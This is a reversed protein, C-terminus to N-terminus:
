DELACVGNSLSLFSARRELNGNLMDKKGKTVDHMSTHIDCVCVCVSVSACVTPVDQILCSRPTLMHQLHLACM